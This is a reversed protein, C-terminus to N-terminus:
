RRHGPGPPCPWARDPLLHVPGAEPPQPRPDLAEPDGGSRPELAELFERILLNVKVPDRVHPSHGSGALEVLRARCGLAEALRPGADPGVIADDTGQIVLCPCRVGTLLAAMPENAERIAGRRTDTLTGPTTELGWTSATKSPSRRTRSPSYRPFSSNWFGVTTGSGTAPMTRQGATKATLRRRSGSRSLCGRRRFVAGVAHDPLHLDPRHRAAPQRRGSSACLVRRTVALRGRRQETGTADMVALADAAYEASLYSDAGAPRDSRGNGRGDFTIVRYHRALFPVQMKWTRSHVVSWAPM